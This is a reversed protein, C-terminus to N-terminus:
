YRIRIVEERDFLRRDFLIRIQFLILVPASSKIWSQFLPNEIGKRPFKIKRALSDLNGKSPIKRSISIFRNEVIYFVM